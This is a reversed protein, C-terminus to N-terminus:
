PTDQAVLRAATRRVVRRGRRTVVAVVNRGRRFHGARVVVLVCIHVLAACIFIVVPDMRTHGDGLAGRAIEDAPM